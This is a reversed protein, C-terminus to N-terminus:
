KEETLANLIAMRAYVGNTMQQFIRSKSAEVLQDAIEVGRNVPAPHMVIASDKLTNYREETLGYEFHYTIPSFDANEVTAIREHQVRLLMVVDLDALDDDFTTYTGFQDFDAPYWDEPGAFSVTAGLRQLIEANSRAVRSHSLDGVIRVKLGEFKGFEEYITVLDLLSQSPHQGNGDGANVLQPMYPTAEKILPAYWDNIKHRLVVVSVGIAGLTKLTDSLSEGKQTSSTQPDIMVQHWGLNTEAVQFSSHTRTSNEFFLNAVLRNSQEVGKSIFKTLQMKGVHLYAALEAQTRFRHEGDVEYRWENAAKQWQEHAWAVVEPHDLDGGYKAARKMMEPIWNM